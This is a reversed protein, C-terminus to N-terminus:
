EEMASVPPPPPPPAEHHQRKQRQAEYAAKGATSLAHIEIKNLGAHYDDEFLDGRGKRGRKRRPLPVHVKGLRRLDRWELQQQNYHQRSFDEELEEDDDAERHEIDDQSSNNTTNDTTFTPQVWNLPAPILPRNYIHQLRPKNSEQVPPPGSKILETYVGKTKPSSQKEQHLMDSRLAHQQQQEKQRRKVTEQEQQTRLKYLEWLEQKERRQREDLEAQQQRRQQEFETLHHHYQHQIKPHNAQQQQQQLQQLQQYGEVSQVQEKTSPILEWPELPQQQGVMSVEQKREWFNSEKQAVLDVEVRKVQGRGGGANKQRQKEIAAAQKQQHRQIWGLEETLRKQQLSLLQQQLCFQQQLQQVRQQQQRLRETEIYPQLHRQIAERSRRDSETQRVHQWQENELQQQLHTLHHHNSNPQAHNQINTTTIGEM